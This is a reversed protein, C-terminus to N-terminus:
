TELKCVSPVRWLLAHLVSFLSCMGNHGVWELTATIRIRNYIARNYTAGWLLGKGNEM